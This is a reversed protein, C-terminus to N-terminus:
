KETLNIKNDRVLVYQVYSHNSSLSLFFVTILLVVSCDEMMTNSLNNGCTGRVCIMQLYEVLGRKLIWSETGEMIKIYSSWTSTSKLVGKGNVLVAM